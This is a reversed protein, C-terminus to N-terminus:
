SDDEAQLTSRRLIQPEEPIQLEDCLPLLQEQIAQVVFQHEERDKKREFLVRDAHAEESSETGALAETAILDGDKRILREPTAGIFVREGIRYAFRTCSKANEDLRNLIRELNPTASLTLTIRRATVIKEVSGDEISEKISDISVM